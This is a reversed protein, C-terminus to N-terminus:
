KSRQQLLYVYGEHADALEALLNELGLTLAGMEGLTVVVSEDMTVLQRCYELAIDAIRAPDQGVPSEWMQLVLLADSTIRMPCGLGEDDFVGIGKEIIRDIVDQVDVYIPGYLSAHDGAFGTGKTVNHAAHMWLHFARVFGIYAAMIESATVPIMQEAANMEVNPMSINVEGGEITALDCQEKLRM